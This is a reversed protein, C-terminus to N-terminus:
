SESGPDEVINIRAGDELLQQGLIVVRGSLAPSKIQLRQGQLIGTEVPQWTVSMGDDAVLFVGSLDDRKAVAQEPIVTAQPIEELVVRLRVFMGPKLKQEPNDASFEVLAQRTNESFVPAVRLLEAPFRQGPYADSTLTATQGPRFLAYDQESVHIAIKVPNLEVIRLLQANASVTEGEDVFREAVVRQDSGGNWGARVETYGLRIRASELVALARTVQARTVEVHAQRALQDAKASDLQSESSIGRDSLKDIRQLERDAIKLQNQAEVLNARAVALDAEAQKMEQVYEANDLRAIVQDRIVTDALDVNLREVRGSVKPAVIFEAFAQTSGTFVRELAIPESSIGALQVPIPKKDKGAKDSHTNVQALRDFVLWGIIALVCLLLIVGPWRNPSSESM